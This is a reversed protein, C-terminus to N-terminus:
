LFLVQLMTQWYVFFFGLPCAVVYCFTSVHFHLARGSLAHVLGIHPFVHSGNSESEQNVATEDQLVLALVFVSTVSSHTPRHPRPQSFFKRLMDPLAEALLAM